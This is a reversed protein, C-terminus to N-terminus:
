FSAKKERNELSSATFSSSKVPLDGEKKSWSRGQYLVRRKKSNKERDDDGMENDIPQIRRLPHSYEPGYIM